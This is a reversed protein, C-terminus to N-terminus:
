RGRSELAKAVRSVAVIYAGTRLDVQHESASNWVSTFATNMKAELTQITEEDTWTRGERNQVWELWSTAVGGSNALIDPVVPIGRRFLAEDAEPTTPGNAMEIIAKAQIRDVNDRTIVNELAAPILIDVPLELLATNTIATFNECDCVTGVCYCGNITGREDKSEKVNRPDM